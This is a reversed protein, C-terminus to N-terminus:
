KRPEGFTTAGTFDQLLAICALVEEKSYGALRSTVFDNVAVRLEASARKGERTLELVIRRGERASQNGTVLGAQELRNIEATVLSRGICLAETLASPSTIGTEIMGMIWAGRPGLDYRATIAARATRMTRPGLGIVNCFMSVDEDNLDPRAPAASTAPGGREEKALAKKSVLNM